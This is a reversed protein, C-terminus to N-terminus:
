RLCTTTGDGAGSRRTTEPVTAAAAAAAAEYVTLAFGRMGSTGLRLRQRQRHPHGHRGRRGSPHKWVGADATARAGVDVMWRAWSGHRARGPVSYASAPCPVTAAEGHQGRGAQTRTPQHPRRAGSGRACARVLARPQRSESRACRSGHRTIRIEPSSRGPRRIQISSM